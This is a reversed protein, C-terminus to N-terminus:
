WSSFSQGISGASASGGLGLVVVVGFGDSLEQSKSCFRHPHSDGEVDSKLHVLNVPCSM